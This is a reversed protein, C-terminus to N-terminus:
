DLIRKRWLAISDQSGGRELLWAEPGGPVGDIVGLVHEVAEQSVETVARATPGSRAGPLLSHGKLRRLVGPMNTGTALYDAIVQEPGVGALRLLLATVIGTRDKGAACHVLLPGPAEAALDVIEVLRPAAIDLITNYLVRLGGALVDPGLSDGARGTEEGLLPKIHVESGLLSLPHPSSGREVASRLDVVTPPPWTFTVAPREDGVRPMDSRYLVGARLVQGAATTMGGVDRLNALAERPSEETGM